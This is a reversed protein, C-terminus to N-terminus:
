WFKDKIKIEMFPKSSIDTRSRWKDCEGLSPYNFPCPSDGNGGCDPKCKGRACELGNQCKNGACCVEGDEGCERPCVRYAVRGADLTAPVTKTVKKLVCDGSPNVAFANCGSKARCQDHCAAASKLANAEQTALLGSRSSTYKDVRSRGITSHEFDHNILFEGCKMGADLRAPDGESIAPTCCM